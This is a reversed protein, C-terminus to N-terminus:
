LCIFFAIIPLHLSYLWFFVSLSPLNSRSFAIVFRDSYLCSCNSILCLRLLYVM